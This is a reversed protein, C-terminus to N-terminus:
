YLRPRVALKGTGAVYRWLLLRISLPELFRASENKVNHRAPVSM